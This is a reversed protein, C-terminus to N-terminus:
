SAIVSQKAARYALTQARQKGSSTGHVTAAWHVGNESGFRQNKDVQFGAAGIERVVPDNFDAQDFDVVLPACSHLTRTLGSVGSEGKMVPSVPM